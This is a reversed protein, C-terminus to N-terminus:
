LFYSEIREQLWLKQPTLSMSPCISVFPSQWISAYSGRRKVMGRQTIKLAGSSMKVERSPPVWISARQPSSQPVSVWRPAWSSAPAGTLSEFSVGLRSTDCMPIQMYWKKVGVCKGKIVRSSGSIKVPVDQAYFRQNVARYLIM